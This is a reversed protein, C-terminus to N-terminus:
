IPYCAEQLGPAIQINLKEYCSARLFLEGQLTFETVALDLFKTPLSYSQPIIFRWEFDLVHVHRFIHYGVHHEM